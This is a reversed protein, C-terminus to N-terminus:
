ADDYDETLSALFAAVAAVDSDSLSMDEFEPPANRLNGARALASSRVYFQVVDSFLLKSGNHFYPASDELDRLMPPITM